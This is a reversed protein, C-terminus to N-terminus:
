LTAHSQFHPGTLVLVFSIEKYSDKNSSCYLVIITKFSHQLDNKAQASLLKKTLQKM